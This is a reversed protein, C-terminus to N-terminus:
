AKASPFAIVNALMSDMAAEDAAKAEAAQWDDGAQEALAAYDIDADYTDNAHAEQKLQEAYAKVAGSLLDETADDDQKAEASYADLLAQKHDAVDEVASKGSDGTQPKKAWRAKLERESKERWGEVREAKAEVSSVDFDPAPKMTALFAKSVMSEPVGIDKAVIQMAREIHASAQQFRAIEPEYALWHNRLYDLQLPSLQLNAM